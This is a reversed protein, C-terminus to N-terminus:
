KLRIQRSASPGVGSENKARVQITLVRASTPPSLNVRPEQTLTWKTFAAKGWRLRYEYDVEGMGSPPQWTARIKGGQTTVKLGQPPLTPAPDSSIYTTFQIPMDLQRQSGLAHAALIASYTGGPALFMAIAQNPAGVWTFGTSSRKGILGVFSTNWDLLCLDDAPLKPNFLVECFTWSRREPLVFTSRTPTPSGNFRFEEFTTQQGDFNMCQFAAGDKLALNWRSRQIVRCADTPVDLKSWSGRVSLYHRQYKGRGNDFHGTLVLRDSLDGELTFYDTSVAVETAVVESGTVWAGELYRITQQTVTWTSGVNSSTAYTFGLGLPSASDTVTQIPDVLQGYENRAFAREALVTWTGQANPALVSLVSDSISSSDSPRAGYSWVEARLGAPTNYVWLGRSRLNDLQIPKWVQGDYYAIWTAWGSESRPEGWWAAATGDPGAVVKPYLFSSTGFDSPGSFATRTTAGKLDTVNAVIFDRYLSGDLRNEVTVTVVRGDTLVAPAAMPQLVAEAPTIAVPETWPVRTTAAQGFAPTLVGSSLGSALGAVLAGATIVPLPRRFSRIGRLHLM